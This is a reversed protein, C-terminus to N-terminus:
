SDKEVNRRGRRPGKEGCGEFTESVSRRKDVGGERGLVGGGRRDQIEFDKNNTTRRAEYVKIGALGSREHGFNSVEEVDGNKVTPDNKSPQKAAKKGTAAISGREKPSEKDIGFDKPERRDGGDVVKKIECV